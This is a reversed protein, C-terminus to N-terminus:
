QIASQSKKGMEKGKNIHKLLMRTAKSANHVKLPEFNKNKEENYTIFFFLLQKLHENPFDKINDIHAFTVSNVPIFFYRDNRIIKGKENQTATLVGILRADIRCGPFTVFESIVMADIPDGDEAKTHPLFGFDYPFCMGLPLLKQLEFSDSQQDYKYKQRSDRPTEIVIKFTQM